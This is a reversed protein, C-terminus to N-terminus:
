PLGRDEVVGRRVSMVLGCSGCREASRLKRMRDKWRTRVMRVGGAVERMRSVWHPKLSKERAARGCM